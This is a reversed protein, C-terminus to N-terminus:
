QKNLLESLADLEMQARLEPSIIANLRAEIEALEKRKEQISIQNVRTQFDSKWEDVTFGLWTFSYKVGLEEAAKETKEKREILFALMDVLKRTDTLTQINTRDHASNASYGFTGSTQWCPREAKEIALKKEQVLNFLEKVKEDTTATTTQKTKM